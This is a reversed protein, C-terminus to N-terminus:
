TAVQSPSIVSGTVLVFSLVQKKKIKFIRLFSSKFFFVTAPDHGLVQLPPGM